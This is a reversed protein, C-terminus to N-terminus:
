FADNQMGFQAVNATLLALQLAIQEVPETLLVGELATRVFVKEEDACSFCGARSDVTRVVESISYQM